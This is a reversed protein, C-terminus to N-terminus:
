RLAARIAVPEYTLRHAKCPGLKRLASLHVKTGYGKHEAFGYGPFRRRRHQHHIILRLGDLHEAVQQAMLTASDQLSGSALLRNIQGNLM